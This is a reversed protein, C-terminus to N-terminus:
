LREGKAIQIADLLTFQGYSDTIATLLSRITDWPVEQEKRGREIHSLM